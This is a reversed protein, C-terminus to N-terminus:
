WWVFSKSTIEGIIGFWAYNIIWFMAASFNWLIEDVPLYFRWLLWAVYRMICSWFLDGIMVYQTIFRIFDYVYIILSMYGLWLQVRLSWFCFVAYSWPYGWAYECALRLLYDQVGEVREYSYPLRDVLRGSPTLFCNM